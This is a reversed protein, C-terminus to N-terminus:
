LAKSHAEFINGYSLNVATISTNPPEPKVGMLRLHAPNCCLLKCGEQHNIRLRGTYGKTTWFAVRAASQSKTTHFPSPFYAVTETDNKRTTGRWTWCDDPGTIDVKEWFAKVTWYDKLKFNKVDLECRGAQIEEMCDLCEHMRGFRGLHGPKSDQHWLCTTKKADLQLQKHKGVEEQLEDHISSLNRQFIELSEIKM